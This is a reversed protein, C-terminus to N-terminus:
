DEMPLRLIFEAGEGPRSRAEIEGGMAAMAQRCFALGLGNGKSRGERRARTQYFRDFVFPLDEPPIGPGQDKVTLRAGRRGLPACAVSILGGEPSFKVANDLLNQLVRALLREDALVSLGCGVAELRLRKESIRAALEEKARQLLSDLPVPQRAAPMAGDDLEAIDLFLDLLEAMRRSARVGSRVLGLEEATLARGPPVDELERLVGLVNTLPSRIDHAVMRRWEEKRQALEVEAAADEILTFHREEIGLSWLPSRVRLCRVRLHRWRDAREVRGDKWKLAPHPGHRGQFQTSHDPATPDRLACTSACDATSNGEHLRACILECSNLPERFGKELELLRKAAPNLYLITGRSDSICVGDTLEDFLPDSLVPPQYAPM